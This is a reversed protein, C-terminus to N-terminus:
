AASPTPTVQGPASWWPPSRPRSGGRRGCSSRRARDPLTEIWVIPLGLAEAGEATQKSALVLKASTQDAVKRAFDIPHRVDLPVAVGGAHMLALFAIAWEPRNVAWVIVRDGPGVGAEALVRAARPVTRALDRYRWVRTRFSPRILLAPHDPFRRAGEPVLDILTNV